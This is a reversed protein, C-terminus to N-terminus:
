STHGAGRASRSTAMPTCTCNSRTTLRSDVTKVNRRSRSSADGLQHPQVINSIVLQGRHELFWKRKEKRLVSLGSLSWRFAHSSPVVPKHRELARFEAQGSARTLRMQWRVLLITVVQQRHSLKATQLSYKYYNSWQGNELVNWM